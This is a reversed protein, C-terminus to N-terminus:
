PLDTWGIKLLVGGSAAYLTDTSAAMSLTMYYDCVSQEHYIDYCFNVDTTKWSGTAPDHMLPVSHSRGAAFLRGRWTLMSFIDVPVKRAFSDPAFKTWTTENLPRSYIGNNYFGGWVKGDLMAFARPFKTEIWGWAPSEYIPTVAKTWATDGLKWQYIGKEFTAALLVTDLDLFAIPLDADPFGSRM